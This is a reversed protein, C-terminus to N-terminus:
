GHDIRQRVMLVNEGALVAVGLDRFHEAFQRPVNVRAILGIAVGGTEEPIANRLVVAEGGAAVTLVFVEPRGILEVVM